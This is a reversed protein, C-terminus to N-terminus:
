RVPVFDFSNVYLTGPRPKKLEEPLVYFNVEVVRGDTYRLTLTNEAIAYRGSGRTVGRVAQLQAPTLDFSEWSVGALLNQEEFAGDRTFRISVPTYDKWPVHYTGELRYGNLPPVRVFNLRDGTWLTGDSRLTFVKEEGTPWWARVRGGRVEYPTCWTPTRACARDWDFAPRLGQPPLAHYVRGGPFFAIWDRGPTWTIGSQVPSGPGPAVANRTAGVYLGEVGTRAGSAAPPLPRAAPAQAAPVTGTRSLRVDIGTAPPRVARPEGPGGHHGAWDGADERGNGNVDRLAVLHYEGPALGRIVYLASPGRSDIRIAKSQPSRDDCRGGRVHCAVVLTGHVDEGAPAHVTGRIEQAQAPAAALALAAVGALLAPLLAAPHRHPLPSGTM